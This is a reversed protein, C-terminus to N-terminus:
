DVVANLLQAEQLSIPDLWDQDKVALLKFHLLPNLLLTLSQPDLRALSCTLLQQLPIEVAGGFLEHFAHLDSGLHDVAEHNLETLLFDLVDNRGVFRISLERVQQDAALHVHDQGLVAVQQKKTCALAEKFHVERSFSDFNVKRVKLLAFNKGPVKLGLLVQEHCCSDQAAAVVQLGKPTNSELFCDLKHLL